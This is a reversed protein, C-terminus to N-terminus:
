RLAIKNNALHKSLFRYFPSYRLFNKPRLNSMLEFENSFHAQDYYGANYGIKTLKLNKKETILSKANDFRCLRIYTRINVGILEKFKRELQRTSLPVKKRLVGLPLLESEVRLNNALQFISKEFAVPAAFKEMFFHDMLYIKKSVDHIAMVQKYLLRVSDGWLMSSEIAKQTVQNVPISLFRSLGYPSFKVIFFLASDAVCKLNFIEDHVGVLFNDSLVKENIWVPENAFFMSVGPRPLLDKSKVGKENWVIHLYSEIFPKLHENAPRLEKYEIM